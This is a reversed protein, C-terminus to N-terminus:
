SEGGEDDFLLRGARDKAGIARAHEMALDARKLTEAGAEFPYHSRAVAAAAGALTGISLMRKDRETLQDTDAVSGAAGAHAALECSMSEGFAVEYASDYLDPTQSRRDALTAM